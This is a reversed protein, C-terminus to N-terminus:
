LWFDTKSPVYDNNKHNYIYKKPSLYQYINNKHGRYLVMWNSVNGSTTIIINSKSMIIVSSLFYLAHNYGRKYYTTNLEEITIVNNFLNKMISLKEPEDTMFLIKKNPNNKKIISIKRTFENFTPINTEVKKDTSRYYCTILEDYKINYKLKLKSIITEIKKSPSFFHKIIPNMLNFKILKYNTFQLNRNVHIKNTYNLLKDPKLFFDHTIDRKKDSKYERFQNSSDVIDPFKKHKNIFEIIKFLRISCCSFFGANHRVIVTNRNM